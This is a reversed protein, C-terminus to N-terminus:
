FNNNREIKRWNKNLFGDGEFWYENNEQQQSVNSLDYISKNGLEPLDSNKNDNTLSTSIDSLDYISKNEAM